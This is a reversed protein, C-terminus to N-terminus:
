VFNSLINQCSDSLLTGTGRFHKLYQKGDRNCKVDSFRWRFIEKRENVVDYTSKFTTKIIKLHLSSLLDVERKQSSLYM